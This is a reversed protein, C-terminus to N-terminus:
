QDKKSVRTKLVQLRKPLINIDIDGPDKPDPKARNM